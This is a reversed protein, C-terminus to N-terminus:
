GHRGGENRTSAALGLRRCLRHLIEQERTSLAEMLELISRVHKPFIRAIFRRGQPTLHVEVVRRDRGLRRRRVWGKRELNDIVTTINGGSRLLKAGIDRQSMPGLHYLTELVGFQTLTLGDHAVERALRASVSNAARMLTIFADLARRERPTGPYHTGM